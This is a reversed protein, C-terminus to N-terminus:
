LFYFYLRQKKPQHKEDIDPVSNSVEPEPESDTSDSYYNSLKNKLALRIQQYYKNSPHERKLFAFDPNQLQKMSILFETQPNLSDNIFKATRKIIDVQRQSDPPKIGSISKIERIEMGLSDYVVSQDSESDENLQNEYTRERSTESINEESHLDKYREAECLKEEEFKVLFDENEEFTTRFESLDILNRVDYRDVWIDPENSLLQLREGKEIDYAVKDDQFIRSSYGLALLEFPELEEERRKKERIMDLVIYSLVIRM